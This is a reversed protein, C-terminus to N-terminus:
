KEVQHSVAVEFHEREGILVYVEEWRRSMVAASLWWPADYDRLHRCDDYGEGDDREEVAVEAVRVGHHRHSM